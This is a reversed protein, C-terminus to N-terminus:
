RAHDMCPIYLIGHLHPQRGAYTIAHGHDGASENGIAPHPPRPLRDVPRDMTLLSVTAHSSGASSSKSKSDIVFSANSSNAMCFFTILNGQGGSSWM